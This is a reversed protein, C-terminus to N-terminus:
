LLPVVFASTCTVTSSNSGAFDFKQLFYYSNYLLSVLLLIISYVGRPHELPGTVITWTSEITRTVISQLSCLHWYETM